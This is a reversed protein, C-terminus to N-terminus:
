KKRVAEEQPAQNNKRGMIKKVEQHLLDAAKQVESFLDRDKDLAEHGTAYPEYYGIYRDIVAENGASSLGMDSLWDEISSKVHGAGESDGHVVVSFIRGGLHKPFDWGKLELAKALEPTKNNTSTPDENGGDACVLRDMMLKLVSPPSYWHTPTIIMVGHARVWMPYIENMWDHIQGLAHNPYCSCPWHCLPMATSVCSKCPHIMKGYESTLRSLDLFEVSVRKAKLRAIATDCLRQTKSEEGPCTHESRPSGCIVLFHPRANKSDHQAKAIRLAHRTNLWDEALEVKPNQFRPGAAKGRPSKESDDYLKWQVEIVTKVADKAEDFEPASFVEHAREKFKTESIDVSPQGKRAKSKSYRMNKTERELIYIGAYGTLALRANPSLLRHKSESLYFVPKTGTAKKRM